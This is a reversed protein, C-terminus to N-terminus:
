PRGEERAGIIDTIKRRVIEYERSIRALEQKLRSQERLLRELARADPQPATDIVVNVLTKV